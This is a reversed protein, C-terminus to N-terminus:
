DHRAAENGVLRGSVPAAEIVGQLEEAELERVTFGSGGSTKTSSHVNEDMWLEIDKLRYFVGRGLRVFKPGTGRMRWYQLTDATVLMMAAFQVESVFGLRERLRQAVEEVDQTLPVARWPGTPGPLATM